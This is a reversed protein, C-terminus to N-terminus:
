SSGDHSNSGTLVSDEKVDHNSLSSVAAAAATYALLSMADM